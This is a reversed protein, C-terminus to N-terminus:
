EQLQYSIQEGDNKLEAPKDPGASPRKKGGGPPNELLVFPGKIGERCDWDQECIFKSAPGVYRGCRPCKLLYLAPVYRSRNKPPSDVLVFRPYVGCCKRRVDAAYLKMAGYANPGARM